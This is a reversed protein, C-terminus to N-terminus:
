SWWCRSDVLMPSVQVTLAKVLYEMAEPVTAVVVFTEQVVVRDQVVLHDAMAVLDEVRVVLDVQVEAQVVVADVLDVQVEVLDALVVQVGDQRGYQGGDGGVGSDGPGFENHGSHGLNGTPGGLRSRVRDHHAALPGVPGYAHARVPGCVPSGSRRRSCSFTSRWVYCIAEPLEGTGSSFWHWGNRFLPSVPLSLPGRNVRLKSSATRIEATTM